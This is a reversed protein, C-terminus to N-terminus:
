KGDTRAPFLAWGTIAVASQGILCGGTGGTKAIVLPRSTPSCNRGRRSLGALSPSKPWSALAPKTTPWEATMERFTNGANFDVLQRLRRSPVNGPEFAPRNYRDFPIPQWDNGELGPSTPDQYQVGFAIGGLCSAFYLKQQRGSIKERCTRKPPAV